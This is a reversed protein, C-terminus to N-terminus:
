GLNEFLFRLMLPITLGGVSSGMMVIGYAIGRKKDFWQSTVPNSPIWTFGIGLGVLLGQSLYLQWIRSTFSAAIFGGAQFAIGLLM